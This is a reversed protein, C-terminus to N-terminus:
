ACTTSQKDALPIAAYEAAKPKPAKLVMQYVLSATIGGLIPGLWYVKM